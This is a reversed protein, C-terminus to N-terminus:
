GSRLYAEVAPRILYEMVPEAEFAFGAREYFRIREEGPWIILFELDEAKAWATVQKM